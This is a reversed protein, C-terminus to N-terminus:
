HGQSLERSRNTAAEVAQRVAKAFGNQRLADLGALTTGGPSTVQQRLTEPSQGTIDVLSVAGRLTQLTLQRATEASLGQQVGGEVLAEIFTFVYAPGSGSLGTVADMEEEQVLVVRGVSELITAVLQQDSDAVSAHCALASM